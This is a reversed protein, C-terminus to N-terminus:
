FVVLSVGLAEKPNRNILCKVKCWTLPIKEKEEDKPQFNLPQQESIINSCSIHLLAYEKVTLAVVYHSIYSV